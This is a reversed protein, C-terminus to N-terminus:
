LIEELRSVKEELEEIQNYIISNPNNSYLKRLKTLKSKFLALTKQKHSRNKMGLSMKIRHEVTKM